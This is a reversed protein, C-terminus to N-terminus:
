SCLKVHLRLYPLTNRKRPQNAMRGQKKSGWSIPADGLMFIDGSYSHRDQLDNAYDADVYGIISNGTKRFKLCYDIAGKLYRLMMKAAGWHHKSYNKNFQCFYSVAFALDPRTNIALYMIYGVLSRYPVDPPEEVDSICKDELRVSLDIPIQSPKYDMM